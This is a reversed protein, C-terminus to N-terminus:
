RATGARSIHMGTGAGKLQQLGPSKQLPLNRRLGGPQSLVPVYVANMGCQGVHAQVKVVFRGIGSRVQLKMQADGFGGTITHQHM